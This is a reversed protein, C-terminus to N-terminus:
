PTAATEVVVFRPQQASIQETFEDGIAVTIQQPNGLHVTLGTEVEFRVEQGARLTGEGVIRGDITARYWCNAGTRVIVEVPGTANATAFAIVNPRQPDAPLKQVSFAPPEPEDPPPPEAPPEPETVVPPTPDAPPAETPLELGTGLYYLGVVVAVAVFVLTVLPAIFRSSRQPRFMPGVRSGSRRPMPPAASASVGPSAAAMAESAARGSLERWGEEYMRMLEDDQLELFRAYTRLFGRAYVDGPILHFEGAEMAELYHRRINTQAQVESLSLGRRERTRNLVQGIQRFLTWAEETRDDTM